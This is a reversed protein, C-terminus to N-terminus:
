ISIIIYKYMGDCKVPSLKGDDVFQNAIYMNSDDTILTNETSELENITKIKKFYLTKKVDFELKYINEEVNELWENIIEYVMNFTIWQDQTIYKYTRPYCKKIRKWDKDNQLLHNRDDDSDLDKWKKIANCLMVIKNHKWLREDMLIIILPKTFNCHNMAITLKSLAYQEYDTIVLKFELDQGKLSLPYQKDLNSSNGDTNTVDSM